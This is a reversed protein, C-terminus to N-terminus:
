SILLSSHRENCRPCVFEILDGDRSRRLAVLAILGIGVLEGNCDLRVMRCPFRSNAARKDREEAEHWLTEFSKM